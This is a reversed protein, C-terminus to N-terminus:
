EQEEACDECRGREDLEMGWVHCGDCVRPDDVVHPIDAKLKVQDAQEYLFDRGRLLNARVHIYEEVGWGSLVPWAFTRAEKANHAFVLVAGEEPCGESAIYIKLM